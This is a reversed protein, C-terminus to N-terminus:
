GFIRWLHELTAVQPCIALPAPPCMPREATAEPACLRFIANVAWITSCPKGSEVAVVRKQRDISVWLSSKRCLGVETLLMEDTPNGM